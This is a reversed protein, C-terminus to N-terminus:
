RGGGNRNHTGEPLSATVALQAGAGPEAFGSGRSPTNLISRNEAGARVPGSGSKRCAAVTQSLHQSTWTDMLELAAMVQNALEEDRM